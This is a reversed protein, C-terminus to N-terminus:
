CCCAAIQSYGSAADTRAPNRWRADRRARESDFEHVGGAFLYSDGWISPIEAFTAEVNIRSIPRPLLSDISLHLIDNLQIKLKLIVQRQHEHFSRVMSNMRGVTDELIEVMNTRFVPNEFHQDMNQLVASLRFALNKIDHILVSDVTRQLSVRAPGIGSKKKGM